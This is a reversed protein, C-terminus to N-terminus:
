ASALLMRSPWQAACSAAGTTTQATAQPTALRLSGTEPTTSAAHPLSYSQVTIAHAACMSRSPSILVASRHCSCRMHQVADLLYAAMGAAFATTHSPNAHGLESSLIRQCWRCRSLQPPAEAASALTCSQPATGACCFSLLSLPRHSGLQRAPPRATQTYLGPGPKVHRRWLFACYAATMYWTYKNLPGTDACLEPHATCTCCITSSREHSTHIHVPHPHQASHHGTEFGRVPRCLSQTSIRYGQPTNHTILLALPPRKSGVAQACRWASLQLLCARALAAGFSLLHLEGMAVHVVLGHEPGAANAPVRARM